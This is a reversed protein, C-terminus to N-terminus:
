GNIEYTFVKYGVTKKYKKITKDSSLRYNSVLVLNNEANNVCTIDSYYM